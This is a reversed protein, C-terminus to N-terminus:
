LGVNERVQGNYLTCDGYMLITLPVGYDLLGGLGVGRYDLMRELRVMIHPVTVMCLYPLLCEMIWCGGLGVNNEPGMSHQILSTESYCTNPAFALHFTDNRVNQIEGVESPMHRLHPRGGPGIRGGKCHVNSLYQSLSSMAVGEDGALLLVGKNNDLITLAVQFLVQFDLTSDFLHLPFWRHNTSYTCLIYM